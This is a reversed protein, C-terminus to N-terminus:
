FKFVDFLGKKKNSSNSDSVTNIYAKIVSEDIKAEEMKKRLEVKEVNEYQSVIQQALIKDRKLKLPKLRKKKIQMARMIEQNQRLLMKIREPDVTEDPLIEQQRLRNTLIKYFHSTQREMKECLDLATAYDHIKESISIILDNVKFKKVTDLDYAKSRIARSFYEV